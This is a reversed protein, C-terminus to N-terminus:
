KNHQLHPGVYAWSPGDAGKELVLKVTWGTPVPDTPPTAGEPVPYTVAVTAKNSALWPPVQAWPPSYGPDVPGDPDPPTPGPHPRPPPSGPSLLILEGYSIVGGSVWAAMPM